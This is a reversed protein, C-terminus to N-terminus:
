TFFTSQPAKKLSNTEMRFSDTNETFRWLGQIKKWCGCIPQMFSRWRLASCNEASARQFFSDVYLKCLEQARVTVFGKVVLDEFLYTKDLLDPNKELQRSVDLVNFEQFSYVIDNFIPYYNRRNNYVLIEAIRGVDGM